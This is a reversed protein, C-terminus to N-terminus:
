GQERPREWESILRGQGDRFSGTAIMILDILLWPGSILAGIVACTLLAMLIGTGVKCAYFRHVGLGGISIALLLTTLRSKPSPGIFSYARDGVYITDSNQHLHNPRDTSNSSTTM